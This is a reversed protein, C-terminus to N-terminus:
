KPCGPANSINYDKNDFNLRAVRDAAVLPLIRHSGPIMAACYAKRAEEYTDFPGLVMKLTAADAVKKSADRGWGRLNPTPTAEIESQKGVLIYGKALFVGFAEADGGQPIQWPKWIVLGGIALVLIVLWCGLKGTSQPQLRLEDGTGVGAQALSGEVGLAQGSAVHILQYNLKEQLGLRQVLPPLWIQIPLDDDLLQEHRDGGPDIIVTKIKAM